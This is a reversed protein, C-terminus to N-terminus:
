IEEKLDEEKVFIGNIMKGKRKSIENYALEVCERLTTDRRIAYFSIIFGLISFNNFEYIEPIENESIRNLEFSVGNLWKIEDNGCYEKVNNIDGDCEFEIYNSKARELRDFLDLTKEEDKTHLLTGIVLTVYIDGISDKIMSLNDKCMAKILESMEEITKLRQGAITGKEDIKREKAWDIINKVLDKM